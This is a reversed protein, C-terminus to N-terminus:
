FIVDKAAPLKRTGDMHEKVEAIAERMNNEIISDNETVPTIKFLGLRSTLIIAQGGKAATLVKTQNERFERASVVIMIIKKCIYCIFNFKSVM